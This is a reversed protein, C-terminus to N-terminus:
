PVYITNLSDVQSTHYFHLWSPGLKFYPTLVPNRLQGSDVQSASGVRVKVSSSLKSFMSFIKKFLILAYKWKKSSSIAKYNSFPCCILTPSLIFIKYFHNNKVFFIIWFIYFVNINSENCNFVCKMKLCFVTFLIM